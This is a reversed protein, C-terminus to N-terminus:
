LYIKIFFHQPNKQKGQNSRSTSHKFLTWIKKEAKKNMLYWSKDQNRKCLKKTMKEFIKM